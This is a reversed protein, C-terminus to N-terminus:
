PHRYFKIDEVVLLPIHYVTHLLATVEKKDKKKKKAIVTTSM